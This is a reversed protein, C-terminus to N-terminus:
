SDQNAYTPYDMEAPVSLLFLVVDSFGDVELYKEKRVVLFDAEQVQEGTGLGMKGSRVFCCHVAGLRLPLRHKGSFTYEVIEVGPTDVRFPSGDGKYVKTSLGNAESIPFVEKSYDDYSAPQGLTKSLNPDLWIQFLASNPLIREAHTIGKGARIIQADGERLTKWGQLQSDYHEIEGKVVFSMIEFGKHPHEDILGGADSWAHAWYFLCSFPRLEGGEGAFGMPKHELIKGFAFSGTGQRAVGYVEVSM